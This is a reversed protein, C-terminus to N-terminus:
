GMSWFVGGCEKSEQKPKTKGFWGVLFVQSVNPNNIKVDVDIGEKLIKFERIKEELSSGCQPCEILEKRMVWDTHSAAETDKKVQIISAEKWKKCCDKMKEGQLTRIMADMQHIRPLIGNNIIMGKPFGEIRGSEYIKYHKKKSNSFVEFIPEDKM